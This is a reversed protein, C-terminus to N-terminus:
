DSWPGGLTLLMGIKRGSATGNSWNASVAIKDGENFIWGRSTTDEEFITGTGDYTAKDIVFHPTTGSAAIFTGGTATVLGINFYIGTASTGFGWSESGFTLIQVYDVTTNNYPIPMSDIESTDGWPNFQLYRVVTDRTSEISPRVTVNINTGTGGFVRTFNIGNTADSDATLRYNQTGSSEYAIKSGNNVLLTGLTTTPAVLLEDVVAKEVTINEVITSTM